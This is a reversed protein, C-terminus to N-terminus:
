GSANAQQPGQLPVKNGSHRGGGIHWRQKYMLFISYMATNYMNYHFFFNQLNKM